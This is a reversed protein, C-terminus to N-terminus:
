KERDNRKIIEIVKGETREDNSPEILGLAREMQEIRKQHNPNMQLKAQKYQRELNRYYPLLKLAKINIEMTENLIMSMGLFYEIYKRNNKKLNARDDNCYECIMYKLGEEIPEKLYKEFNAKEEDKIDKQMLKQACYHVLEILREGVNTGTGEFFYCIEIIANELMEEIEIKRKEWEKEAKTRESVIKISM